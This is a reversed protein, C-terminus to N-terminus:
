VNSYVCDTCSVYNKIVFKWKCVSKNWSFFNILMKEEFIRRQFDNWDSKTRVFATFCNKKGVFSKHTYLHFFPLFLNHGCFVVREYFQRHRQESKKKNQTKTIHHSQLQKVEHISGTTTRVCRICSVTNKVLLCEGYEYASACTWRFVVLMCSVSSLVWVCESKLFSREVFIWCESVCAHMGIHWEM